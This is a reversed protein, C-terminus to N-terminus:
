LLWVTFHSKWQVNRGARRTYKRGTHFIRRKLGSEDV